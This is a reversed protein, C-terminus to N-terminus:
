QLWSKMAYGYNGKNLMLVRSFRITLEAYLYTKNKSIVPKSKQWLLHNNAYLVDNINIYIM